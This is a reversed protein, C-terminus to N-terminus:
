ALTKAVAAFLESAQVPKPLFGQMGNQRCLTRYEDATNATFALIPVEGYGAIKRIEHTADFGSMEPLQLDMLILSYTAEKARRIAETGCEACDVQYGRPTLLHHVVTRSVLNDEVLLIRHNTGTGMAATAKSPIEPVRLPLVLEFKSGRGPESEVEIRGKMLAALKNAIALGLGLGPYSRSLGGELQRFSEFVAELHKPSIGIGSDFVGIRLMGNEVMTRVEVKGDLTFKVGNSILHSLLKRLRPADGVITEPFEGDITRLIRLGKSRAKLSHEAIASEITEQLHFECDDLSVTGSMLASYELTANLVELLNEACLRTATVYEKQEEDLGTELLLDTMGVIGSLPTRIEHNLSALFQGKLKTVEDTVEVVESFSAGFRM